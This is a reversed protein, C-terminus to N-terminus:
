IPHSKNHNWKLNLEHTKFSCKINLEVINVDIKRQKTKANINTCDCKYM